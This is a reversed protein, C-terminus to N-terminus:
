RELERRMDCARCLCSTSSAPPSAHGELTALAREISDLAEALLEAGSAIIEGDAGQRIIYTTSWPEKRVRTCLARALKRRQANM